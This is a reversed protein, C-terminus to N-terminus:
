DRPSPSTYLLCNTSGTDLISLHGSIKSVSENDFRVNRGDSWAEPPLLVSPTDQVIGVSGLGRVPQIPM